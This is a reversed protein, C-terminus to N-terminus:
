RIVSIVGNDLSTIQMFEPKEEFEDIYEIAPLICILKKSHCVPCVYEDKQNAVQDLIKKTPFVLYSVGGACIDLPSHDRKVSDHRKELEERLADLAEARLSYLRKPSVIWLGENFSVFRMNSTVRFAFLKEDILMESLARQGDDKHMPVSHRKHSQSVTTEMFQMLDEWLINGENIDIYGEILGIWVRISSSYPFEDGKASGHRTLRSTQDEVTEKNETDFRKLELIMKEISNPFAPIVTVDQFGTEDAILERIKAAAVSGRLIIVMHRFENGFKRMYNRFVNIREDLTSARINEISILIVTDDIVIENDEIHIRETEFNAAILQEKIYNIVLQAVTEHGTGSLTYVFGGEVIGITEREITGLAILERITDKEEKSSIEPDILMLANHMQEETLYGKSSILAVIRRVVDATRNLYVEEKTDAIPSEVSISRQKEIIVPASLHEESHGSQTHDEILHSTEPLVASKTEIKKVTAIEFTETVPTTILAVGTKLSRLYKEQTENLSLFRAGVQSDYPLRFVIKTGTNALINSSINPRTSVVIVGQGTARQLMVMSEGTTIDAANERTYSEPVLNNAEELVVIHQLGPTIGRQMAADFIRKAILNYLIRAADMGGTRAVYRLDFIVRKDMYQSIRIARSGGRLISGLPNRTLIELRNLLADKTLQSTQRDTKVGEIIKKLRKVSGDGPTEGMKRLAQLLLREMAPSLESSTGRERLLENLIAFTTDINREDSRKDTDLFDIVFDSDEGPRIIIIDNNEIDLLDLYESGKVDFIWWPIKTKTSIETMIQKVLTTKGSGTAGLIAIHERIWDQKLGVKNLKKGKYLSWGIFIENDVLSRPPVNFESAFTASLEPLVQKPMNVYAVLKSVHMKKPSLHRRLLSRVGHHVNIKIPRLLFDGTEGWISHVIGKLCDEIVSSEDFGIENLRIYTSVDFWGSRDQITRYEELLKEKESHDALTDRKIKERSRIQQWKGELSRRKRSPNAPTFVCTLSASIEQQLLASLFKGIQTSNALPINRPVGEVQWFSNTKGKGAWDTQDLPITVDKKVSLKKLEEILEKKIAQFRPMEFFSFFAHVLEIGDLQRIEVHELTALIIAETRAAERHLIKDIDEINEGSCSIFLRIFPRRDLTGVEYAINVNQNMGSRIAMILSTDYELPKGVEESASEKLASLELCRAGVIQKEARVYIYHNGYGIEIDTMHLEDIAMAISTTLAMLCLIIEIYFKFGTALTQALGLLPLAYAGVLYIVSILLSSIWALMRM